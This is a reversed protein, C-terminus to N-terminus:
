KWWIGGFHKVIGHGSGEMWYCFELYDSDLIRGGYVLYEWVVFYGEDLVM